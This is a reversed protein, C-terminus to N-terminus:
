FNWHITVDQSKTIKNKEGIEIYDIFSNVIDYNSEGIGFKHCIWDIFKEITEYLFLLIIVGIYASVTSRESRKM